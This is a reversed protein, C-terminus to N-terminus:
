CSNVALRPPKSLIGAKIIRWCSPRRQVLAKRSRKRNRLVYAQLFTLQVDSRLKLSSEVLNLIGYAHIVRQSVEAEDFGTHCEFGLRCCCENRRRENGGLCRNSGRRHSSRRSSSAVRYVAHSSKVEVVTSGARKSMARQADPPIM